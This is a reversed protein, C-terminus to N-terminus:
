TREAQAELFLFSDIVSSLTGYKLAATHRSRSQSARIHPLCWVCVFPAGFIYDIRLCMRLMSREELSGNLEGSSMIFSHSKLALNIHYTFLHDYANNCQLWKYVWRAIREAVYIGGTRSWFPLAIM